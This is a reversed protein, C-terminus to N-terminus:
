ITSIQYKTKAKYEIEKKVTEIYQQEYTEKNAFSVFDCYSCKQKCFPIHIYIGINEM